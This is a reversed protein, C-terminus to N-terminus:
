VEETPDFPISGEIELDRLKTKFEKDLAKQREADAVGKAITMVLLRDIISYNKKVRSIFGQPAGKGKGGRGSKDPKGGILIALATSLSAAAIIKEPKSNLTLDFSKKQKM